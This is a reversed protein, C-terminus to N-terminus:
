NLVHDITVGHWESFVILHEVCEKIVDAHCEKPACWCVLYVTGTLSESIIRKIEEIVGSNKVTLARLLWVRYNNIVEKRNSGDPLMAFPNGLASPRGVYIGGEGKFTRKNVVIINDVDDEEEVEDEPLYDTWSRKKRRYVGKLPIHIRNPPIAEGRPMWEKKRGKGERKARVIEATVRRSKSM